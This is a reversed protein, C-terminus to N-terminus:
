GRRIADWEEATIGAACAVQFLRSSLRQYKTWTDSLEVATLWLETSISGPGVAECLRQAKALENNM